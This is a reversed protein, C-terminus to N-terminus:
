SYANNGHMLTNSRMPTPTNQLSKMEKERLKELQQEEGIGAINSATTEGKISLYTGVGLGTAGIGYQLKNNMLNFKAKGFTGINDKLLKQYSDMGQTYGKFDGAKLAKLSNTRQLIAGHAKIPSMGAGLLKGRFAQRSALNPAKVFKGALSRGVNTGARWGVGGFTGGIGFAKTKDWLGGETNYASLAGMGLFLPDAVTNRGVATIAKHARSGDKLVNPAYQQAGRMASNGAGRIYSMPSKLNKAAGYAGKTADWAGKAGKAARTGSLAARTAGWAGRALAVSAVKELAKQRGLNYALEETTMYRGM